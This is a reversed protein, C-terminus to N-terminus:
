WAGIDIQHQACSAETSRGNQRRKHVQITTAREATKRPGSTGPNPPITQSSSYPSGHQVTEVSGGLHPWTPNIVELLFTRCLNNSMNGVMAKGPEHGERTLVQLANTCLEHCKYHIAGCRTTRMRGASMFLHTHHYIAAITQLTTNHGHPLPCKDQLHVTTAGHLTACCRVIPHTTTRTEQAGAGWVGVM